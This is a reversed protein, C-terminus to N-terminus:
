EGKRETKPRAKEKKTPGVLVIARDALLEDIVQQQADLEIEVDPPFNLVGAARKLTRVLM